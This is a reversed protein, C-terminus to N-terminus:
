PENGARAPPAPRQASDHTKPARQGQVSRMGVSAVFRILLGVFYGGQLIAEAVLVVIVTSEVTSGRSIPLIIVAFPLLVILPLLVKWRFALGTGVGIVALGVAFYM